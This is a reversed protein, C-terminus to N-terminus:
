QKVLTVNFIYATADLMQSGWTFTSTGSDYAPSILGAGDGWGVNTNSWQLDINGASHVLIIGDYAYATGYSSGIWYWGGLLDQVHYLGEDLKDLSLTYPGRNASASSTVRIITSTYNGSLDGVFPDKIEAVFVNRTKSTSFGEPNVAVYELTYMGASNIDVAGKVVVADSIDDTGAFAAYGPEVFAVGKLVVNIEGENVLNLEPLFTAKSIGYSDKDEDNVCANFLIMSTIIGSMVLLKSIKKMNIRNLLNFM